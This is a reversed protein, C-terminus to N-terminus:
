ELSKPYKYEYIFQDFIEAAIRLDTDFVVGMSNGGDCSDQTSYVAHYKESNKTVFTVSDMYEVPCDSSITGVFDIIKNVLEQTLVLESSVETYLYEEDGYYVNEADLPKIQWIQSGEILESAYSAISGLLILFVLVSKM